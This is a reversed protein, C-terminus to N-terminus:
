CQFKGHEGEIQFEYKRFESGDTVQDFTKEVFTTRGRRDILIVTSCRTGYGPSRIFIPSLLRERELGVGTDPLDRDDPVSRDGLIEFLKQEPIERHNELLSALLQKARVVKPWPIDLLGNSLGYIGPGLQLHDGKLNSYWFLRDRVGLLLNFGNYRGARPKLRELYAEPDLNGLLFERVLLGRSQAGLKLSKPDRYNTLAGLRGGRTIGLWTGGGKLDRGSLLHPAEPWWSAPEAPRDYYEDRNAALILDYYSHAKLAFVLLCM